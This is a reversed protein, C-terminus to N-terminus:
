IAGCALMDQLHQKVEDYMAPPIRRPRDKFPVDDTLVMRHKVGKACGLETSSFAFVNKWKQLMQQVQEKEDDTIVTDDLHVPIDVDGPPEPEPQPDLQSQSEADAISSSSDLVSAHQLTAVRQRRPIEVTRSTLNRLVVHVSNADDPSVTTHYM